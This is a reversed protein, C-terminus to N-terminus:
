WSTESFECTSSFPWKVFGCYRVLLNADFAYMARNIFLTLHIYIQLAVLFSENAHM